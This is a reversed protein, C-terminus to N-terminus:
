PRRSRPRLYRAIGQRFPVPTIGFLENAPGPDGVNDEQLMLLQDRNLPPAQGFVQGFLIELAWAQARAVGLPLHLKLRKRGMVELIQDLMEDFTFREPGCLEFTRGVAKPESLARAFAQAVTEVAVPQFSARGSGLVPVVPSLRIIRAFLNVFHDHPGFILSPRFITFESGSQRVREEAACKSRHYRSAAGLRTGLASMHVFRRVGAQQAAALLNETGRTHVNEFTADGVESIIGVLHIVAGIDAVAPGLTAPATVDGVRVDVAYRATLERVSRSAGDRALVRLQHGAAHLERTVEQGVFGTAGTVLVNMTPLFNAGWGASRWGHIDRVGTQPARM